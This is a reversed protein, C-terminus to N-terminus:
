EEIKGPILFVLQLFAHQILVLLDQDLLVLHKPSACSHILPVTYGLPSNVHALSAQISQM